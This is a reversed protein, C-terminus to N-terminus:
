RTYRRTTAITAHGLRSQITQIDEGDVALKHAYLQRVREPTLDPSLNATRAYKKIIREISRPTLPSSNQRGAKDHRVFLAPAADTRQNLYQRIAFHTQHTLQITRTSRRLGRVAIARGTAPIDVRKLEVLESVKMGTTALLQLLATDRLRIITPAAANTAAALVRNIISPHLTRSPLHYPELAVNDLSAPLLGLRTLYAIFARVAILHYNISSSMMTSGRNTHTRRLMARFTDIARETIDSPLHAGTTSQFRSLYLRYNRITRPTSRSVMDQLFSEIYHTLDTPM